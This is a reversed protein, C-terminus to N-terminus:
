AKATAMAAGAWAAVARAQRCGGQWPAVIVAAPVTAGVPPLAPWPRCGRAPVRCDAALCWGQPSSGERAAGAERAPQDQGYGTAGKCPAKAAAQGHTAPGVYPITTAQRGEEESGESRFHLLFVYFSEVRNLRMVRLKFGIKRIFVKARIGNNPFRLPLM